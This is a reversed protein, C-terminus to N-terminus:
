RQGESGGLLLCGESLSHVSRGADDGQMMVKGAPQLPLGRLRKQHRILVDLTSADAAWFGAFGGAFREKAAHLPDQPEDRQADRQENIRRIVDRLLDAFVCAPLSQLRKSLAQESVSLPGVWLLGESALARLAEALSPMNRWVLSVLIAAMVPLTLLRERLKSAERGGAVRLPALAAPSLLERLRTEIEEVPPLPMQTRRRFDPNNYRRQERKSKPM